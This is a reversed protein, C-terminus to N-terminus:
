DAERLGDYDKIVRLKRIANRHLQSVRQPTVQLEKAIEVTTKHDLASRVVQQERESLQNMHNLVYEHQEKLREFYTGDQEGKRLTTDLQWMEKEFERQRHRHKRTFNLLAWRMRTKAYTTFSCGQPNKPDFTKAAYHLAILAEAYEETDEIAPSDPVFFRTCAVALATYEKIDIPERMTADKTGPAKTTQTDM